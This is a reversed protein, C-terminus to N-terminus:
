ARCLHLSAAPSSSQSQCARLVAAWAGRVPPAGHAAAPGHCLSSVESLHTRPPRSHHLSSAQVLLGTCAQAHALPCLGSCRMNQDMAKPQAMDPSSPPGVESRCSKLVQPLIIFDSLWGTRAGDHQPMHAHNPARGIHFLLCSQATLM